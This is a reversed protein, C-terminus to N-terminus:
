LVTVSKLCQYVKTADNKDKRTNLVVLCMTGKSQEMIERNSIGEPLGLGQAVSKLANKLAGQGYENNLMFSVSTTATPKPAEETPESMEVTEHNTIKMEVGMNEGMKKVEFSIAANYAGAPFVKFEPLDALDDLTSDLLSDINTQDNMTNGKM